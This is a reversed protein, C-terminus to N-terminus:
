FLLKMYHLTELNGLILNDLIAFSSCVVCGTQIILSFIDTKQSKFFSKLFWKNLLYFINLLRSNCHGFSTCELCCCCSRKTSHFGKLFSHLLTDSKTLPKEKKKKEGLEGLSYWHNEFNGGIKHCKKFVERKEKKRRALLAIDVTTRQRKGM